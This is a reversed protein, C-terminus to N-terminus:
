WRWAHVRSTSASRNSTLLPQMPLATRFDFGQEGLVAVGGGRGGFPEAGRWVEEGEECGGIVLVCM